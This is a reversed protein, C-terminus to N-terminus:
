DGSPAVILNIPSEIFEIFVGWKLNVKETLLNYGKIPLPPFLEPHQRSEKWVMNILVCQSQSSLDSTLGAYLGGWPGPLYEQIEQQQKIEDQHGVDIGFWVANALLLSVVVAFPPYPNRNTNILRFGYIVVGAFAPVTFYFFLSPTLEFTM